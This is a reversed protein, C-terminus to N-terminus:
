YGAEAKQWGNEFEERTIPTPNGLEQWALDRGPGEVGDLWEGNKLAVLQNEAVKLDQCIKDMYRGVAVEVLTELDLNPDKGSEDLIGLIEKQQEQIEQRKQMFKHCEHEYYAVAYATGVRSLWEFSEIVALEPEYQTIM